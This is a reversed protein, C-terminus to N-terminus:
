SIFIQQKTCFSKVVRFSRLNCKAEVFYPGAELYFRQIELTKDCFLSSNDIVVMLYMRFALFFCVNEQNKTQCKQCKGWLTKRSKQKIPPKTWCSIQNSICKSPCCYQELHLALFTFSYALKWKCAHM